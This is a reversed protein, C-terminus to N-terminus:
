TVDDECNAEVSAALLRGTAHGHAIGLGGLQHAIAHGIGPIKQNQVWGAMLAANMMKLCFDENGSDGWYAPLNIFIDEAAKEALADALTNSLRSAYSEVAHSLADLGAYAIVEMPCGVALRPDLVAIDPLLEPSVLAHKAGTGSDIVLASSSVESGTGATTPVAVFRAKGRLTPVGGLRTLREHEIGPHEYLVWAIKAGDLVAGGGVAVIWDPHFTELEALVPQLSAWGPEGRPMEILKVSEAGVCRRLTDEHQALVSPSVLVAARAADLARLAGLTGAGAFVEGASVFRPLPLRIQLM